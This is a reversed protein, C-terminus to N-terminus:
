NVLPITEEQEKNGLLWNDSMIQIDNYDVYGSNDLDTEFVCNITPDYTNADAYHYGWDNALWKFDEMNVTCDCNIDADDPQIIDPNYRCITLGDVLLYSELRMDTRDSVFLVLNYDGAEQETFTYEFKKWRDFSGYNGLMSIDVYTVTIESLGQDDLPVLKIVGWDNYPQYDCAGFFYAGKLTDGSHIKVKQTARAYELSDDGTSLVLLNDKKFAHFIQNTKIKWNEKSGMYFQPDFGESVTVTNETVWDCPDLYTTTENLDFVEFSGNNPDACVVNCLLALFLVVLQGSAKKLYNM